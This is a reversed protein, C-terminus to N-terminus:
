LAIMEVIFLNISGAEILISCQNMVRTNKKERCIMELRTSAKKEKM